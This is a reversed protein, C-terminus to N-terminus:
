QGSRAMPMRSALFLNDFVGDSGVLVVDGEEALSRNYLAVIQRSTDVKSKWM